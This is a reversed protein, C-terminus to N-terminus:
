NQRHENQETRAANQEKLRKRLQRISEEREPDNNVAMYVLGICLVGFLAISLKIITTTAM